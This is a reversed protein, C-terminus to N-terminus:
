GDKKRRDLYELFEKFCDDCLDYEKDWFCRIGDYSLLRIQKPIKVRNTFGSRGFEKGCRDCYWRTKKAMKMGWKM